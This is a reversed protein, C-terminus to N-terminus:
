GSHLSSTRLKKLKRFGYDALRRAEKFRTNSWPAGLVVVTLRDGARNELTTALCYDAAQIYGTKGVLTKYKSYVLRNSTVCSRYRKKGRKNTVAFRYSKKQSAGVIEAYKLAQNVLIACDLASSKNAPSLGTPEVMSTQKLGLKRATQTMM